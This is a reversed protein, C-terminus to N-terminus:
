WRGRVPARLHLGNWGRAKVTGAFVPLERLDARFVALARRPAPTAPPTDDDIAFGCPELMTAPRQGDGLVLAPIPMTHEPTLKHQEPPRAAVAAQTHRPEPRPRSRLHTM